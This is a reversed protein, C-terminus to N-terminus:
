TIESDHALEIWVIVKRVTIIENYVSVAIIELVFGCVRCMGLWLVHLRYVSNAVTVHLCYV